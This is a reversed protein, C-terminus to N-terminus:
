AAATEMRYAGVATQRGKVLAPELRECGPKTDLADYTPDSPVIQGRGGEVREKREIM